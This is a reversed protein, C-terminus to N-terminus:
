IHQQAAYDPTQFHQIHLPIQREECFQRVFTEDRDSEEGRLHFNCHLAEVHYGLEQLILTLAVSDAGGSLAVAVKEGETLLHNDAIFLATQRVLESTRM